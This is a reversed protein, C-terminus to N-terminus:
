SKKLSQGSQYSDLYRSELTYKAVVTSGNMSAVM